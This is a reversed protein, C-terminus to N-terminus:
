SSANQLRMENLRDAEAKHQAIQKEKIEENQEAIRANKYEDALQIIFEEESMM